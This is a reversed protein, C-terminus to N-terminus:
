AYGTPLFLSLLSIINNHFSIFVPSQLSSFLLEKATIIHGHVIWRCQGYISAYLRKWMSLIILCFIILTVGLFQKFNTFSAIVPAYVLALFPSVTCLDLRPQNVERLNKISMELIFLSIHNWLPHMQYIKM